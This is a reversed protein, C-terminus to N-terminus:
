KKSEDKNLDYDDGPGNRILDTMLKKRNFPKKMM